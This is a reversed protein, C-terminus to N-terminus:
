ANSGFDKPYQVANDAITEWNAKSDVWIHGKVLLPQTSKDILGVPIFLSEASNEGPVPSGCSRCFCNIWDHGPKQWRTIHESGQSFNFTEKPVIIVAVGNGGSKRQCISCHCIYVDGNNQSAEFKVSGCNCQGTLTTNQSNSETM